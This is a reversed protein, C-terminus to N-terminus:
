LGCDPVDLLCKPYTGASLNPATQLKRRYILKTETDKKQDQTEKYSAHQQQKEFNSNWAM